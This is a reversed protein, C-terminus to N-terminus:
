KECLAAGVATSFAANKPIIYRIGYLREFLQCQTETQPLEALSGVLVATSTDCGRCTLLTMTGIVQLVLNVAGAAQDAPTADAAVHGFNTLTMDPDLTPPMKERFIDRVTLDVKGLDGSVSLPVIKEFEGTGALGQCLGILTGGGVGTGCLHRFSRGEALVFATGTGMSVVVAREQGSLALAGHAIAAFEDELVPSFGILSHKAGTAGAGTLVLKSVDKKTCGCSGLAEGLLTPLNGGAKRRLCLLPTSSTEPLIALKIASSGLDIGIRVSM